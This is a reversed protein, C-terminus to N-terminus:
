FEFPLQNTILQKVIGLGVSGTGGTILIKKGQFENLLVDKSIELV